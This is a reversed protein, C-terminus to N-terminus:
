GLIDFDATQRRWRAMERERLKISHGYKEL